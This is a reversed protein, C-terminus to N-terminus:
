GKSRQKNRYKYWQAKVSPQDFYSDNLGLPRLNLLVRHIFNYVPIKRKLYREHTEGLNRYLLEMPEIKERVSEASNERLSLQEYFRVMYNAQQKIFFLSKLSNIPEKIDGGHQTSFLKVDNLLARPIELERENETIDFHSILRSATDSATQWFHISAQPTRRSHHILKSRHTTLCSNIEHKLIEKLTMGQYFEHLVTGELHIAGELSIGQLITGLEAETLERLTAPIKIVNNRRRRNGAM